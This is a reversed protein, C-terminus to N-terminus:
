KKYGTAHNVVLLINPGEIYEATLAVFTKVACSFVVGRFCYRIYYCLILQMYVCFLIVGSFSDNRYTVSSILCFSFQLGYVVYM